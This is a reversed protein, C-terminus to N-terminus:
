PCDRTGKPRKPKAGRDLGDLLVADWHKLEVLHEAWAKADSRLAAYGANLQEFILKRQHDDLAKQLVDGISERRRAPLDKLGLHSCESIRVEQSFRSGM